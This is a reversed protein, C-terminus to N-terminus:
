SSEHKMATKRFRYDALTRRYEHDTSENQRFQESKECRIDAQTLDVGTWETESDIKLAWGQREEEGMDQPRFPDAFITKKLSSFGFQTGCINGGVLNAEDLNCYAFRAKSLNGALIKAYRFDSGGLDAEKFSVATMKAYFFASGNLECEDFCSGTLDSASFNSQSLKSGKFNSNFDICGEFDLQYGHSGEFNVESLSCNKFSSGNIKAGSFNANYLKCGTFTSGTLNKGFPFKLGSLDLPLESEKDVSLKLNTMDLDILSPEQTTTNLRSQLNRARSSAVNVDIDDHKMALNFLEQRRRLGERQLLEKQHNEGPPTISLENKILTHWDDIQFFLDSVAISREIGNRSLLRTAALERRNAMEIRQQTSIQLRQAQAAYERQKRDIDFQTKSDARNLEHETKSRESQRQDERDQQEIHMLQASWATVMVGVAALIAALTTAGGELGKFRVILAMSLVALFVAAALLLNVKKLM